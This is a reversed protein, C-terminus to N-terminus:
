SKGKLCADIRAYLEDRSEEAERRSRTDGHEWACASDEGYRFLEERCERLLKEAEGESVTVPVCTYGLERLREATTGRPTAYSRWAHAPDVGLCGTILTGSSDKIAYM